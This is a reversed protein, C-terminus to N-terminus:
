RGPLKMDGQDVMKALMSRGYVYVTFGEVNVETECRALSCKAMWPVKCCLQVNSLKCGKETHGAARKGAREVAHLIADGDLQDRQCERRKSWAM